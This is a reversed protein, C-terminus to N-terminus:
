SALLIDLVFLRSIWSLCVTCYMGHNFSTKSRGCLVDNAGISTSLQSSSADIKQDQSELQAAIGGGISSSHHHHDEDDDPSSNYDERTSNM